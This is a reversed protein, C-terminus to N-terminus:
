EPLDQDKRHFLRGIWGLVGAGGGWQRILVTTCLVSLLLPLAADILVDYWNAHRGPVFSQHIEDSIGYALTTLWGAWCAARPRLHLSWARVLLLFLLSYEGIHGLKKLFTDLWEGKAQPLSSWSSAYFIVAMVVLPPLWYWFWRVVQRVRAPLLTM